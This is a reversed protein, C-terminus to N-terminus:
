QIFRYLHGKSPIFDGDVFLAIFAEKNTIPYLAIDPRIIVPEIGHYASGDISMLPSSNWKKILRIFNNVENLSLFVAVGSIWPCDNKEMNYGERIREKETLLSKPMVYFNEERSHKRFSSHKKFAVLFMEGDKIVSM